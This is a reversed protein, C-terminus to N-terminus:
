DDAILELFSANDLNGVEDYYAHYTRAEASYERMPKQPKQENKDDSERAEREDPKRKGSSTTGGADESASEDNGTIEMASSEIRPRLALGEGLDTQEGHSSIVYSSSAATNSKDSEDVEKTADSRPEFLNILTSVGGPRKSEKKKGRTATKRKKSYIPAHGSQENASADMTDISTIERKKPPFFNHLRISLQTLEFILCIHLRSTIAHRPQSKGYCHSCVSVQM